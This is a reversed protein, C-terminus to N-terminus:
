NVGYDSWHLLVKNTRYRSSAREPDKDAAVCEILIGSLRQRNHLLYSKFHVSFHDNRNPKKARKSQWKASRAGVFEIRRHELSRLYM